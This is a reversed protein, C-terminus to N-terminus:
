IDLVKMGLVKAASNLQKDFCCFTMQGGLAINFRQACALQVSDYARLSLDQTFHGATEFLSTDLAIKQYKEWELSLKELASQTQAQTTQHTRVRLAFASRMEVWTITAVVIESSDTCLRTMDTSSSEQAYLKMLASTDCYFM